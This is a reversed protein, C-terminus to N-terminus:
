PSRGLQILPIISHGVEGYNGIAVVASSSQHTYLFPVTLNVLYCYIFKIMLMKDEKITTTMITKIGQTPTPANSKRMKKPTMM